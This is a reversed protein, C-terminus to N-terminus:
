TFSAHEIPSLHGMEMLQGILKPSEGADILEDIGSESYCLRAGMSAVLQPQPTKALLKVKLHAQPM